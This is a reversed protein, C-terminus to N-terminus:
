RAGGELKEIRTQPAHGIGAAVTFIVNAIMGGIFCLITLRIFDSM